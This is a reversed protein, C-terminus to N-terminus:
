PGPRGLAPMALLSEGGLVGGGKGLRRCRGDKFSGMVLAELSSINTTSAGSCFEGDLGSGSSWNGFSCVCCTASYSPFSRLDLQYLSFLALTVGVM